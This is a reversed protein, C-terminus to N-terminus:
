KRVIKTMLDSGTVVIFSNQSLGGVIGGSVVDKVERLRSFNSLSWVTIKGDM